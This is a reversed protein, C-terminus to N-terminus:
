IEAFGNMGCLVGTVVMFIVEGFHHKKNGGTRPDEILLFSEFDKLCAAPTTLKTLTELCEILKCMGYLPYM